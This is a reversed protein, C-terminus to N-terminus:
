FKVSVSVFSSDLYYAVSGNFDQNIWVFSFGEIVMLIM